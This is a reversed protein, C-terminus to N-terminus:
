VSENCLIGNSKECLRGVAGYGRGTLDTRCGRIRNFILKLIISGEIDIDLLLARERLRKVSNTNVCQLYYGYIAFFIERMFILPHESGGM